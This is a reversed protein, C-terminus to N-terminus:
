PLLVRLQDLGLCALAVQPQIYFFLCFVTTFIFATLQGGNRNLCRIIKGAHRRVLPRALAGCVHLNDVHELNPRAQRWSARVQM